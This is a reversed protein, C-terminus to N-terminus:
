LKGMYKTFQPDKVDRMLMSFLMARTVDEYTNLFDEIDAVISEFHALEEETFKM